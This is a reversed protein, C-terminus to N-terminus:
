ENSQLFAISILLALMTAPHMVVNGQGRKDISKAPHEALLREVLESFDNGRQVRDSLFGALLYTDGERAIHIVVEADSVRCFAFWPDGEDSLGRETEVGIGAQSLAWEVRYFQALEQQSWDRFVPAAKAVRGRWYDIVPGLAM